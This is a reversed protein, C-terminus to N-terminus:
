RRQGGGTLLAGGVEAVCHLVDVATSAPLAQELADQRGGQLDCHGANHALLDVADHLGDDQFYTENKKSRRKVAVSNM